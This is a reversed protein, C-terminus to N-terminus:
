DPASAFLTFRLPLGFSALAKVESEAIEVECGVSGADSIMSFLIEIFGEDAQPLSELLRERHGLEAILQDLLGRMGSTLEESRAIIKYGWVGTKQVVTKGTLTTRTEGRRRAVTPAIGLIETVMDPDLDHGYVYLNVELTTM